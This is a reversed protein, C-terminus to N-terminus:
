YIKSKGSGIRRIENAYDAIIKKEDVIIEACQESVQPLRMAVANVTVIMARCDIIMGLMHSIEQKPTFSIM